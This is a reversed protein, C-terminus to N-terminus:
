LHLTSRSRVFDLLLVCVHEIPDRRIHIIRANPLVLHILSAFRFNSLSKDTIREANPAINCIGRLYRSGLQVLDEETLTGLQELFQAYSKTQGALHALAQNFDNVEGAGFVRPHSALIQEVLTSGSRPMGVIFIPEASRNGLGQRSRMFEPTFIAQLRDFMSLTRAEDYGIEQRKLANGCELHRFSLHYQKLDAFVKGAAFHLDIQDPRALAAPRQALEVFSTLHRDGAVATRAHFYWKYFRIVKPAHEIAKKFAQTAEEIRGLLELALGLNGHADAYDPKIALAKM